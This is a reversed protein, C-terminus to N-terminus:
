IGGLFRGSPQAVRVRAYGLDPYARTCMPLVATPAAYHIHM